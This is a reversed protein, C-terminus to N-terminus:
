RTYPRARPACHDVESQKESINRGLLYASFFSDQYEQPCSDKYRGGEAGFNFGNERTCFQQIGTEWGDAYAGVDVRVGYESCASEHEEYHTSRQGGRGDTEGIAFWDASRCESENMTACAALLSLLAPVTVTRVGKM